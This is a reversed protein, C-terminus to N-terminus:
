FPFELPIEGSRVCRNIAGAYPIGNCDTSTQGISAAIAGTMMDSPYAGGWERVGNM